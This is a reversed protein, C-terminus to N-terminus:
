PANDNAQLCKPLDIAIQRLERDDSIRFRPDHSHEILELVGQRKLYVYHPFSDPDWGGYRNKKRLTDPHWCIVSETFSTVTNGGRDILNFRAAGSTYYTLRLTVDGRSTGPPLTFWAPLRSDPALEFESEVCGCLIVCTVLVAANKMRELKYQNATNDLM